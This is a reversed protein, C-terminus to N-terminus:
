NKKIGNEYSKLIIKLDKVFREYDYIIGDMASLEIGAIRVEEKFEHQSCFNIKNRLNDRKNIHRYLDEQNISILELIEKEM